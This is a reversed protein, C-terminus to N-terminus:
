NIKVIDIELKEKVNNIFPQFIQETWGRVVWVSKNNWKIETRRPTTSNDNPSKEWSKTLLNERESITNWFDIMEDVSMDPHEEAYRSIVTTVTEPTTYDGDGNISYKPRKGKPKNGNTAGNADGNANDDEIEDVGLYEMMAILNKSGEAGYLDSFTLDTKEDKKFIEGEGDKCVDNWLYFLIKNLLVKETITDQDDAKVFFDGLMKDESHNIKYVKDNVIKQFAVWSYEVGQINIVWNKNSYKIPMYEWDWRRKFASDIPFLSQDSTNMTAWIYLNSPLQLEEGSKITEPLDDCDAFAKALYNQIDQDAKVPYESEGNDKRDLLQFIDGFIQACNGRNIEEIILFIPQMNEQSEWAAVYAKLFIQPVFTYVIKDGDMTPKYAGVFTSYDSDPHFTTRFVQTKENIKIDDFFKKIGHSKGTGPAGYSIKQLPLNLVEQVTGETSEETLDETIGSIVRLTLSGDSNEEFSIISNNEVLFDRISFKNIRLNNLYIRGDTRYYLNVTYEVTDEVGFFNNVREFLLKLTENFDKIEQYDKSSSQYLPLKLVIFCLAKIYDEKHIIFTVDREEGLSMKGKDILSFIENSLNLGTEGSKGATLKFGSDQRHVYKLIKM